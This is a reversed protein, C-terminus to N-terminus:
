RTLAKADATPPKSLLSVTCWVALAAHVLVAPWLAIGVLRVFLGTYVLIAAAAVNYILMATILGFHAPSQQDSRGMWCAVGGALLAAGAIRALFAAEPSAQDVGLLLALLLTPLALLVLGTGGEVLATVMLLYARHM